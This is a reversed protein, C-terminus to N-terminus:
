ISSVVSGLFIHGLVYERNESGILVSASGVGISDSDGEMVQKLDWLSVFVTGADSARETFIGFKCESSQTM